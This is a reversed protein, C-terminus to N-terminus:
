VRGGLLPNEFGRREGRELLSRTEWIVYDDGGDARPEAITISRSAYTGATSFHVVFSKRTRAPDRM